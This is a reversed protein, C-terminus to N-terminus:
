TRSATDAGGRVITVDIFGDTRVGMRLQDGPCAAQQSLYGALGEIRRADYSRNYHVYRWLWRRGDDAVAIVNREPNAFDDNLAPLMPALTEPVRVVGQLPGPDLLRPTVRVILVPGVSRQSGPQLGRAPETAPSPASPSRDSPTPGTTTQEGPLGGATRLSLLSRELESSVLGRVADISLAELPVVGALRRLRKTLDRMVDQQQSGGSMVVSRLVERGLPPYGSLMPRELMGVAQDELVVRVLGWPDAAEPDHLVYARWWLRGFANRVGRSGGTFRRVPTGAGDDGPFRWRVVDPLAVCAIFSWVGPQAAEHPSLKMEELLVKSVEFDFSRRAAEETPGQDAAAQMRTRVLGQLRRVDTRDVSTGGVPAIIVSEDWDSSRDLLQARPLRAVEEALSTAVALPLRPWVNM